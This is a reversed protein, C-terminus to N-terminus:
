TFIKELIRITFTALIFGFMLLLFSILYNGIVLHGVGFLISNLFLVGLAFGFWNYKIDLSTKYNNEIHRSIPGWYGRPRIKQYFKILHNEDVPKTLFTVILSLLTSIVLILAARILSYEDDYLVSLKDIITQNLLGTKAVTNLIILGNALVLASIMSTIESWANIRWWYWRLMGIIAVGSMVEIIYIWANSISDMQWATIGSLLLLLVISIRSVLLYHKDSENKKIFRKYIDNVMYSAGWCLHTDVTSMFAAMFAAVLLGKLGSPLVEVIMMPYALEPDTILEVPATSIPLLVISGLGVVIWPWTLIVIGAVAFWLSAKIAHKENKASFLRQVIFGDGQAQGLWLIGILCLFSIMEISSINSINPMMDLIAPPADTSAIIKNSLAKPGGIKMLIMFALIITSLTGVTFHFMDLVVVGRIGSILTHLLAFTLTILLAYEASWGLMVSSFKLMALIVWGLTICNKFIGYFGATFARLTSASKGNYRLEILEADTLIEARRWNKAYFFVMMMIGTGLYWWLWNSYIGKTRVLATVALPADTAFWTAAISTGLLWWPLSRGAVFFDTINSNKHKILFVGIFISVVLYLIIVIWDLLVLNM